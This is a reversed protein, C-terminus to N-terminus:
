TGGGRVATVIVDAVESAPRDANVGFLCATRYAARRDHVLTAVEELGGGALNPRRSATTPDAEIRAFAVEPSVELWIVWGSRQMAEVNERRMVCGGGTAIVAVPGDALRRLVQTERDRFAGEGETRFMEAITTRYQAELEADADFFPRNLAAAVIAGVTSKGSGRSGILFVHGRENENM